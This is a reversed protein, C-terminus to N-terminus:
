LCLRARWRGGGMTSRLPGCVQIGLSLFPCGSSTATLQRARARGETSTRTANEPEDMEGRSAGCRLHRPRRRFRTSGFSDSIQDPSPTKLVRLCTTVQFTDTEHRIIALSRRFSQMNVSFHVHLGIGRCGTLSSQLVIPREFSASQRPVRLAGRVTMYYTQNRSNSLDCGGVDGECEAFQNICYSGNEVLYMVDGVVKTSGKRLSSALWVCSYV